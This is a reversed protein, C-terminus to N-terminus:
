PETQAAAIDSQVNDLEDVLIKRQKELFIKWEAESTYVYCRSRGGDVLKGRACNNRCVIL